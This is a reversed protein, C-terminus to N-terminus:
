RCEGSATRTSQYSLGEGISKLIIPINQEEAQRQRDEATKAKHKGRM